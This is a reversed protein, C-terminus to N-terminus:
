NGIETAKKGRNSHGIEKKALQLPSQVLWRGLARGLARFFPEALEAYEYRDDNLIGDQNTYLTAAVFVSRGTPRHHVWANETSFGYARGIKNLIEWDSTPAVEGLGPLLFKGWSDPYESPDYVPDASERPLQGMIDLLFTRDGEELQFTGRTPCHADPRILKCLGQQLELLSFRNKLSFDFPKAILTGQADLYGRGVYLGPIETDPPTWPPAIRQPLSYEWKPAVFDIQPLQRNEELTRPEALRHVIRANPLGARELSRALGDPGVLEYLRNFAENDSVLFLKRIEHEVTVTGTALHTPDSSVLEEGEFLPHLRLPTKRDMPMRTESRLEALRELAAIAAFLKVTSAPYFYEADVRFGVQRLLPVAGAELWGLVVQVRLEEARSLYPQLAPESLLLERIFPDTAELVSGSESFHPRNLHSSSCASMLLALSYLLVKSAYTRFLKSSQSDYEARM